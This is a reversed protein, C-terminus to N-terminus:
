KISGKILEYMNADLLSSKDKYGATVVPNLVLRQRKIASGITARNIKTNLDIVVTGKRNETPDVPTYVDILRGGNNASFLTAEPSALFQPLVAFDLDSIAIGRGEFKDKAGGRKRGRKDERSHKLGKRTIVKAATIVVINKRTQLWDLVDDDIYALPYTDYQNGGVITTPAMWAQWNALHAPIYRRIVEALDAAAITAPQTIGQNASHAVANALQASVSPASESSTIRSAGAAAKVGAGVASTHAVPTGAPTTRASPPPPTGYISAGPAYAFGPDIGEPVTVTGRGRVDVQQYKVGPTKNPGKMGRRELDRKSLANVYCKCGWGNPPFHTRWWPNDAHLILGDWQLHQERPTTSAHSHRYEWYPMLKKVEQLQRWRGAAYSTRLNTDYIVRTRWDRGGNYSWGHKAVIRDFESRFTELTTGDNIASAVAARLDSLLADRAAGAVVFATDHQDQWIDTWAYTKRSLKRRFFDIQEDFPLYAGSAEALNLVQSEQSDYIGRLYTAAM